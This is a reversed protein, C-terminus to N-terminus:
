LISFQTKALVDLLNDMPENLHLLITLSDVKEAGDFIPLPNGEDDLDGLFGLFNDAWAHYNASDGHLANAPDFWRYFNDYVADASVPTGDTFVANARLNFKYTLGDDAVEWSTALGPVVAGGDLSVLGDYVYASVTLSDSDDDTLVAPDLHLDGSIEMTEVSPEETAADVSNNSDGGSNSDSGNNNNGSANGSNNAPANGGCAALVLGAIMILILFQNSIKNKKM